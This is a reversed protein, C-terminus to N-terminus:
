SFCVALLFMPCLLSSLTNRSGIPLTDTKDAGESVEMWDIGEFFGVIMGVVLRGGPPGM